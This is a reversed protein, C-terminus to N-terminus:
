AIKKVYENNEKVFGMKTLYEQHKENDTVSVLKTINKNIFFEKHEEFIYKGVKFDRFARTVFDLKIDLIDDKKTGIFLGAPVMDRLIFFAITNEDIIFEPDKFFTNIDEKNFDVFLNFYDSKEHIELIQFFEKSSYMKYLYYINIAVIGLNMVSTPISSILYGYIAFLLSGALNIWRLKLISSSLLSILIILSAIYGFWDLYNIM